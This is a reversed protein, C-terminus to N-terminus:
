LIAALVNQICLNIFICKVYVLSLLLKPCKKLKQDDTKKKYLIVYGITLSGNKIAELPGLQNSPEKTYLLRYQCIIERLLRCSLGRLTFYQERPDRHTM